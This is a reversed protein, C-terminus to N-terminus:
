RDLFLFLGEILNELYVVYVLFFVIRRFRSVKLEQFLAIAKVSLNPRGNVWLVKKMTLMGIFVAWNWSRLTTEVQALKSNGRRFTLM